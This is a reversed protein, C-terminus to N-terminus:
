GRRRGGRWSMTILANAFVGGRGVFTYADLFEGAGALLLGTPLNEPRTRIAPM